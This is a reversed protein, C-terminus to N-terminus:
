SHPYRIGSAPPKSPVSFHSRSPAVRVVLEEAAALEEQEVSGEGCDSPACVPESWSHLAALSLGAFPSASSIRARVVVPAVIQPLGDKESEQTRLVSEFPEEFEVFEDSFDQDDEEPDPLVSLPEPSARRHQAASPGRRRSKRASAQAGSAPAQRRNDM